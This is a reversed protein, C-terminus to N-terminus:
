TASSTTQNRVEAPVQRGHRQKHQRGLELKLEKWFARKIMKWTVRGASAADPRSEQAGM